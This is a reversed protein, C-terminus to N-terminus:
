WRGNTGSGWIPHNSADYLVLNGDDQMVLTTSGHGNTGTAWVPHSSNYLVLNGDDQMILLNAGKGNTGSGWLAHARSYLVLNGDEQVIVRYNGNTSLLESGLSLSAGSELSPPTNMVNQYTGTAWDPQKNSNYLVLNGDTQLVLSSLGQGPTASSWIPQGVTNYMVLNGDGQLTLYAVNQGNTGSGWIAGKPTYLVLNGDTQMTLTYTGNSSQLSQGPYLKLYPYLTDLPAPVVRVPIGFSAAPMWGGAQGDAVLGYVEYYGAGAVSPATMVFQFTGTQGPSVSSEIMSTPRDYSIWSSDQFPSSRDQPGETALNTFSKSWTQTGINKYKARVYIKQGYAMAGPDVPKSYSADSYTVISTLTGNYPNSVNIDFGFSPSDQMWGWSQGDAVLGFDEHYEGDINPTTMSFEFTGTQNPGVSSEILAAPRNNSLWSSDQFVSSRDQPNITAVHTWTNSWTNGGSNLASVKVYIKRGSPLPSSLSLQQTMAADSYTTVNVEAAFAYVTSGWWQEFSQVFNYSGSYGTTSYPGVYPTYCYLAATASSDLTVTEATGGPDSFTVTSGPYLGNNYLSSSNRCPYSSPAYGWWNQGNMLDLYTRFQWAGNDLQNFLGVYGSCSNYGMACNIQSSSPSPDTILSQEKQMTAMIAQPNLGYARGAEYILDAASERQGCHQYYTYSYNYPYTSSTPPTTPSCSEIDTLSKLGSNENNLFTQINGIATNADGGMSNVNSFIGDSILDSPNYAYAALAPSNSLLLALVPTLVTLAAAFIKKHLPKM